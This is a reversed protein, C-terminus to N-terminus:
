ETRRRRMDNIHTIADLNMWPDLLLQHGFVFESLGAQISQQLGETTKQGGRYLAGIAHNIEADSRSIIKGNRDRIAMKRM